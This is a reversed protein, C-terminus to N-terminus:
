KLKFAHKQRLSTVNKAESTRKMYEDFTIEGNRFMDRDSEIDCQDSMLQCDEYCKDIYMQDLHSM